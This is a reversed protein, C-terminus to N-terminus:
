GKRHTLKFVATTELAEDTQPFGSVIEPYDTKYKEVWATTVRRKDHVVQTAQLDYLSGAMQIRVPGGDGVASVWGTGKTGVVHLDEDIDVVWIIVTRAMPGEGAQLQIEHIHQTEGWQEPVATPTGGIFIGPMPGIPASYLVVLGIVILVIVSIKPINM